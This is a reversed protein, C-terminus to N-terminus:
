DRPSPSTYLLCYRQLMTPFRNLPASIENEAARAAVGGGTTPLGLTWGLAGCAAAQLATRRSVESVRLSPDGHRHNM